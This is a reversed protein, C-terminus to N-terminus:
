MLIGTTINKTGSLLNIITLVIGNKQFGNNGKFYSIIYHNQRYFCHDYHNNNLLNSTRRYKQVNELKVYIFLLVFEFRQFLIIM